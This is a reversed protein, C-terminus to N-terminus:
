LNYKRKFAFISPWKRELDSPTLVQPCYEHDKNEALFTFAAKVQKEGRLYLLEAHKLQTTNIAWSLERKPFWSFVEKAHPYKGISKTKIQPEDSEERIPASTAGTISVANSDSNTLLQNSDPIATPKWGGLLQNSGKIIRSTRTRVCTIKGFEELKAVADSVTRESCKLQAALWKNSAHVTLNNVFFGNLVGLLRWHAPVSQDAM